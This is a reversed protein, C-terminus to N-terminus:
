RRRIYHSKVVAGLLVETELHEFELHGPLIGFLPTGGGLLVPVRSIILEDIMDAALFSRILKGGDIYLRTHGRESLSRVVRDIPGHVLEAKDAYAEPVTAMTESMVFVPKPYPWECDFGCVTEFTNRGMLLADIGEMFRSFGFDIQEPNPTAQLFQLGGERDAIYGDLSVGIFVKNSM